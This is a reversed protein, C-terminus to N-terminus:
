IRQASLAEQEGYVAAVRPSPAKVLGPIAQVALTRFLLRALKMGDYRSEGAHRTSHATEFEDYTSANQNLQTPIYVAPAGSALFREVVDRRWGRLMCGPDSLRHKVALGRLAAAFIASAAGRVVGDRRGERITGVADVNKLREIIGPIAEPPNQLDADITVIYRGRAYRLGVGIAGHQGVCHALEVVVLGPHRHRLELLVGITNDTCGDLVAIIESGGQMPGLAAALRGVLEGCNDEENLMPVIVSVLPVQNTQTVM